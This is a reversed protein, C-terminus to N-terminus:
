CSTKRRAQWHERGNGQDDDVVTEDETLETRQEDVSSRNSGLSHKRHSGLVMSVPQTHSCSHKPNYELISHCNTLTFCCSDSDFYDIRATVPEPEYNHKTLGRHHTPLLSLVLAAPWSCVQIQSTGWHKVPPTKEGYLCRKWRVHASVEYEYAIISQSTLLRRDPSKNVPCEVEVDM